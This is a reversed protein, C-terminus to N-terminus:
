RYIIVVINIKNSNSRIQKKDVMYLRLTIDFYEGFNVTRLITRRNDM